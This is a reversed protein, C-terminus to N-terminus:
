EYCDQKRLQLTLSSVKNNHVEIRYGAAASGPVKVLGRGDHDSSNSGGATVDMWEPYAKKLAAYSSGVRIGEPTAFTQDVLIAALGLKASFIISAGGAALEARQYCGAAEGTIPLLLGTAEAQAPTQGLVLDGLGRPGLVKPVPRASAATSPSASPAASPSAPTEVAAPPSAQSTTRCGSLGALAAITALVALATLTTPKKM